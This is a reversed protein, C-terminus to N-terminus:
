CNITRYWGYYVGEQIIINKSIRWAHYQMLHNPNAETKNLKAEPSPSYPGKLCCIIFTCAFWVQPISHARSLIKFTSWNIYLISIWTWFGFIKKNDVVEFMSNLNLIKIVSVKLIWFWSLVWTFFHYNPEANYALHLKRASIACMVPCYIPTLWM